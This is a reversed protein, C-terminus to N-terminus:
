CQTQLPVALAASRVIRGSLDCLVTSNRCRDSDAQDRILAKVAALPACAPNKGSLSDCSLSEVSPRSLGAAEGYLKFYKEELAALEKNYETEYDDYKTQLKELEAVRARIPPDLSAVFTESASPEDQMKLRVAHVFNWHSVSM